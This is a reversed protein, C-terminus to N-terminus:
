AKIIYGVFDGLMFFKIANDGLLERTIPRQVGSLSLEKKIIEDPTVGNQLKQSLSLKSLVISEYGSIPELKDVVIICGGTNLKEKLKKILSIQEKKSLFMLVLFCIAVDFNKFEVNQANDIILDGGGIYLDAMEKSPEIAYLKATRHVIDDKLKVGINGTSAGIDYIVGNKPLYHRVIHVVANTVIDYFPLQERVHADFSKAINKSEFSWQGLKPIEM